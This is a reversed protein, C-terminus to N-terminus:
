NSWRRIIRIIQKLVDLREMWRLDQMKGLGHFSVPLGSALKIHSGWWHNRIQRRIDILLILSNLHFLYTIYIYIDYNESFM